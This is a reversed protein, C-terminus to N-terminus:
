ARSTAAPREAAERETRPAAPAPVPQPALRGAAAVSWLLCLWTTMAVLIHVWVLESPLKLAYQVGGVAGQVGICCGLVVLARRAAPLAERHTLLAWVGVTALGFATGTRGHWHIMWDLTDAGKFTLRSVEHGGAHPGAATALTGAFIVLAGVPLLARVAWVSSRDGSREREGPEHGAMWFLTFAAALCAMSLLYHGMVFGPRLEYIVTLGGLVGQALVGLPLIAGVLMLDRRYPRRRFALLWAGLTVLGVAASIMRNGYEILAHTELPAYFRGHCDPWDPCGLGSGTLRVGAGTLVILVLAALAVETARRYQAPTLTPLRLRRLVARFM